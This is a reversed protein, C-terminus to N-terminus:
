KYLLEKIAKETDWNNKYLALTAEEETAFGTDIMVVEVASRSYQKSLKLAKLTNENNMKAKRETQTNTATTKM